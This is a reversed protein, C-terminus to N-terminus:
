IIELITQEFIIMTLPITGLIIMDDQAIIQFAHPGLYYNSDIFWTLTAYGSSNTYAIEWTGNTSIEILSISINFLPQFDSTTLKVIYTVNSPRIIELTSMCIFRIDRTNIITLEVEEYDFEPQGQFVVRFRFDQTGIDQAQWSFLGCGNQDLLVQRLLIWGSQNYLYVFCIKNSIPVQSIADNISLSFGIIDGYAAESRNSIFSIQAQRYVVELPISASTPDHNPAVATINISYNGPSSPALIVASFSNPAFYDMLVSSNSLQCTVNAEELTHNTGQCCLNAEVFVSCNTASPYYAEIVSSNSIVTLALSANTISFVETTFISKYDNSEFVTINAVFDGSCLQTTNVSQEFNSTMDTYLNWHLLITNNQIAFIVMPQNPVDLSSNHPNQIKGEIKFIEHYTIQSPLPSISLILDSRQVVFQQQVSDTMSGVSDQTWGEVYVEGVQGTENPAWDNPSIDFTISKYIDYGVDTFEKSFLPTPNGDAHVSVSVSGIGLPDTPNYYLDYVLNVQLKEGIEFSSQNLTVSVIQIYCDQTLISNFSVSFPLILFGFLLM